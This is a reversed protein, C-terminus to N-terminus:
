SGLQKPKNAFLRVRKGKKNYRWAYAIGVLGSVPLAVAMVPGTLMFPLKQLIAAAGLYLVGAPISERLSGAYLWGLPGLFFGLGGAWLLSKEKKPRPKDLEGRAESAVEIADRAGFRGGFLRSLFGPRETGAEDDASDRGTAALEQKRATVLAVERRRAEALEADRAAEAAKNRAQKAEFEAEAELSLRRFREEFDENEM